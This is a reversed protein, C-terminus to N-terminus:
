FKEELLLKANAVSMGVIVRAKPNQEKLATGVRRIQDWLNGITVMGEKPSNPMLRVHVAEPALDLDLVTKDDLDRLEERIADVVLPLNGATTKSSEDSELQLEDEGLSDMFSIAAVQGDKQGGLCILNHSEAPLGLQLLTELCKSLLTDVERQHVVSQLGRPPMPLRFADATSATLDSGMHHFVATLATTLDMEQVLKVCQLCFLPSTM